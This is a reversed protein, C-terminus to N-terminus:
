VNEVMMHQLQESHVAAEPRTPAGDVGCAAL